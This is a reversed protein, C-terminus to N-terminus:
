GNYGRDAKVKALAEQYLDYIAQLDNDSERLRKELTMDASDMYGTWTTGTYVQTSNNTPMFTITPTSIYNSGSTVITSNDYIGTTNTNTYNYPM